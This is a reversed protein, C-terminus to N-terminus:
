VGGFSDFAIKYLAQAKEKDKSSGLYKSKGDVQIRAIWLNKRKDYYVGASSRDKICNSRHSILQLNSLTNNEQNNDIHDVEYGTRDTGVFTDFVLLHIYVTKRKTDPKYLQVFRYKTYATQSNLAGKLIKGTITNKVKGTNSVLYLNEYDKVPLWQEM